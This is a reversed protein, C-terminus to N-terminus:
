LFDLMFYSAAINARPTTPPFLPDNSPKEALHAQPKPVTDTPPPQQGRNRKGVGTKHEFTVHTWNWTGNFASTV